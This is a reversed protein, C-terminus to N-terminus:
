EIKEFLNKKELEEMIWGLIFHKKDKYEEQIGM